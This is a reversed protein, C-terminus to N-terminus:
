SGFLHGLLRGGVLGTGSLEVRLPVEIVQGDHLVSRELSLLDSRLIGQNHLRQRILVLQLSLLVVLEIIPLHELALILLLVSSIIVSLLEVGVSLISAVLLGEFVFSDRM